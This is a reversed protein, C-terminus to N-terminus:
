GLGGQVLAARVTKTWWQGGRGGRVGDKNLREAIARYSLGEARLEAVRKVADPALESMPPAGLRKGAARVQALADRTRESVLDAKLQSWVGIMGLMARGMPTSTDFPETASVLPLATARAPDVLEWLIRQSRAVRSVSYVVLASGPANPDGVRERLTSGVPRLHARVEAIAQSLGPRARAESRGSAGEDRYVSSVTFDRAACIARCKAEQADLGIGNRAQEQTSVRLYIVAKM